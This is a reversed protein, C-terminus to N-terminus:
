GREAVHYRRMVDSLKLKPPGPGKWPWWDNAQAKCYKPAMEARTPPCKSVLCTVTQDVGAYHRLFTHDTAADVKRKAPGLKTLGVSPQDLSWSMHDKGKSCLTRRASVPQREGAFVSGVWPKQRQQWPYRRSENAQQMRAVASLPRRVESRGPAAEPEKVSSGAERSDSRLSGKSASKAVTDICQPRLYIGLGGRRPSNQFPAFDTGGEQLQQKWKLVLKWEEESIGFDRFSASDSASGVVGADSVHAILQEAEESGYLQLRDCLAEKLARHSIRGTRADAGLEYLASAMSGFLKIMQLRFRQYMQFGSIGAGAQAKGLTKPAM